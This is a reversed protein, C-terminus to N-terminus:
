HKPKIKMDINDLMHGQTDHQSVAHNIDEGLNIQLSMDEIVNSLLQKSKDPGHIIFTNNIITLQDLSPDQKYQKCIKLYQGTLRLLYQSKQIFEPLKDEDLALMYNLATHFSPTQDQHRQKSKAKYMALVKHRGLSRLQQDIQFHEETLLIMSESLSILFPKQLKEMTIINFALEPHRDYWRAVKEAM